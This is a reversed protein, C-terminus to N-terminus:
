IEEIFQVGKLAGYMEIVMSHSIGAQLRLTMTATVIMTGNEDKTRKIELNSVTCDQSRAHALFESVAEM